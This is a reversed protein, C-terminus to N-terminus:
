ELARDGGAAASPRPSSLGSRPPTGRRHAHDGRGARSLQGRAAAAAAPRRSHPRGRRDQPRRPRVRAPVPGPGARRRAAAPDRAPAGRHPRPPRPVRRLVLGRRRPPRLHRARRPHGGDRGRVDGSRSRGRRRTRRPTGSARASAPPSRTSRPRASPDAAGVLLAGGSAENYHQLARGLEARLTTVSGPKLALEAPPQVSGAATEYVAEVRPAAERANRGRGDLRERAADLRAAMADATPRDKEVAERLLLLADYYCEEQVTAGDKGARLPPRLRRLEAARVLHPRVARLPGPSGRPASSAARGTPRAGRSM